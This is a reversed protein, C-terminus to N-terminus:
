DLCCPSSSVSQSWLPHFNNLGLIQFAVWIKFLQPGPMETSGENSNYYVTVNGHVQEGM